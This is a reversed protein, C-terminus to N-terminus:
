PCFTECNERIKFNKKFTEALVYNLNLIQSLKQELFQLFNEVRLFKRDLIKRKKLKTKQEKIIRIKHSKPCSVKYITM